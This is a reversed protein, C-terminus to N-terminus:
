RGRAVARVSSKIEARQGQSYSRGTKLRTPIGRSGDGRSVIVANTVYEVEMGVGGDVGGDGEFWYVVQLPASEDRNSTVTM